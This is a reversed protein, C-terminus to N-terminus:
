NVTSEPKGRLLPNLGQRLMSALGSSRRTKHSVAAMFVDKSSYLWIAKRARTIATYILERSLFPSEEDPLVIVVDDFESGQSKHITMAYATQFEPLRSPLYGKVGGTGDEFWIKMTGEEPDMLCIGIDGNYLDLSYDNRRILIPKGPYWRGPYGIGALYHNEVLANISDVGMRGSRTACLIRFRNFEEFVAPYQRLGAQGAFRLYGEYGQCITEHFGTELLHINDFRDEELLAWGKAALNLNVTEALTKIAEDFRYSKQLVVTNQPLSSILDALVAGSEVSALQDKDGLLILRAGSHLADVLKSMLALDVMSAEDVIVVDWPL